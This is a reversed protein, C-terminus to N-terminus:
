SLRGSERLHKVFSPFILSNSKQEEEKDDDEHVVIDATQIQDITHQNGRFSGTNSDGAFFLHLVNNPNNSKPRLNKSATAAWDSIRGHLNMLRCNKILPSLRFQRGMSPSHLLALFNNFPFNEFSELGPSPEAVVIGLQPFLPSRPLSVPTEYVGFGDGDSYYEDVADPDDEKEHYSTVGAFGLRRLNPLNSKKKLYSCWIDGGGQHNWISLETLKSAVKFVHPNLFSSPDEAVNRIELTEIASIELFNGALLSRVCGGLPGILEEDWDVTYPHYSEVDYPGNGIITVKKVLQKDEKKVRRLLHCDENSVIIVHKYLFPKALSYFTRSVLLCNLLDPPSSTLNSFIESLLEPPLQRTPMKSINLELCTGKKKELPELKAFQAKGLSGSKGTFEVTKLKASNWPTM